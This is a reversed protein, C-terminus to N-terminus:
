IVRGDRMGLPRAAKFIGNQYKGLERERKRVVGAGEKTGGGCEGDM